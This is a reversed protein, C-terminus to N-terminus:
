PPLFGLLIWGDLVLEKCCPVLQIEFPGEESIILPRLVQTHTADMFLLLLTKAEM